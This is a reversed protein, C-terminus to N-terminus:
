GSINSVMQMMKKTNSDELFSNYPNMNQQQQKQSQHSEKLKKMVNAKELQLVQVM